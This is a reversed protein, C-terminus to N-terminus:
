IISPSFAKGDSSLALAQVVTNDSAHRGLDDVADHNCHQCPNSALYPTRKHNTEVSHADSFDNSLYRDRQRDCNEM